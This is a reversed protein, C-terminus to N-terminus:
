LLSPSPWLRACTTVGLLGATYLTRSVLSPLAPDCNRIRGGVPPAPQVRCYKSARTPPFSMVLSTNREPHVVLRSAGPEDSCNLTSTLGSGATAPFALLTSSMVAWLLSGLASDSV